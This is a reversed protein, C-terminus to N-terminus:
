FKWKWWLQYGSGSGCVPMTATTLSKAMISLKLWLFPSDKLVTSVNLKKKTLVHHLIVANLVLSQGCFYCGAVTNVIVADSVPWLWGHVRELHACTNPASSFGTSRKKKEKKYEQIKKERHVTKEGMSFQNWQRPFKRKQPCNGYRHIKRHGFLPTAALEQLKLTPVSTLAHM